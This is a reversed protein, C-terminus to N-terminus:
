QVSLSVFLCLLCKLGSSGKGTGDAVAQALITPSRNLETSLSEFRRLFCIRM